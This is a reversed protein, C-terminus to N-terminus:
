STEVEEENSGPNQSNSWYGEGYDLFLEGGEKVRKTTSLILRHLGNVLWIQADCNPENSHNLYRTENGAKASDVVISSNVDFCYNLHTHKALADTIIMAIGELGDLVIIEGVYEGIITGAKLTNPTFAGLGFKAPSITIPDFNGKQIRNNHCHGPQEKDKKSSSGRADCSICLEPDCERGAAHCVCNDDDNCLRKSKSTTRTSGCECGKWRIHCKLDCRCNRNCHQKAEYCPCDNRRNCPGIHHCPDAPSFKPSGKVGISGTAYNIVDEFALHVPRSNAEDETSTSQKDVIEDDPYIRIRYIFVEFCRKRCIVAMDCPSMDPDFKLTSELLTVDNQDVWQVQDSVAVNETDFLLFCYTSCPDDRSRINKLKSSTVRPIKEDLHPYKTDRHTECHMHICNLNPCFNTIDRNIESFLDPAPTFFNLQLKPLESIQSGPWVLQDRQSIDLLLGKQSTERLQPLGPLIRTSNIDRLTFGDRFHLRRITELAIMEFDPNKFDTEKSWAFGDFNQLFDDIDFSPDDAYPVYFSM